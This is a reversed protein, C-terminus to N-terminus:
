RALPFEIGKLQVDLMLQEEPKRAADAVPSVALAKLKNSKIVM